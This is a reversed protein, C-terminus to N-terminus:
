LNRSNRKFMDLLNDLRYIEGENLEDNNIKDRIMNILPNTDKAHMLAKNKYMRYDAEEIVKNFPETYDIDKTARGLSISIPRDERYTKEVEKKIRDVIEDAEQNSTSPLLIMFEDGGWRGLIDESRICKKLVSATKKLFKDGEEHGFLDNILKLGNLDGIIVSIPLQRKTDLREIEENLYHRNYLGTLNDHFGLYRIKKDMELRNLASLSHAILLEVLELDERTFENVKTSVAQFVGRDGIPITIASHYKESTPNAFPEKQIDKSLLSQKNKYVHTALNESDLPASISEGNLIYSSTAKVVLADEEVIDLTCLDFDLINEAAKVTLNYVEQSTRVKEMKLATKHLDRIKRRSERLISSLKQEEIDIKNLILKKGILVDDELIPYSKLNINFINNNKDEIQVDSKLVSGNKIQNKIYRSKNTSENIKIIEDINKGIIDEVKFGFQKVFSNNSKVIRNEEDLILISEPLNDFLSEYNFTNILDDNESKNKKNLYTFILATIIVLLINIIINLM